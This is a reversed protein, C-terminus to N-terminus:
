RGSGCWGAHEALRAFDDAPLTILGLMIARGSDLGHFDSGGTVLLDHAHAIARYRETTPRDHDPHFVEIAQLGAGAFEPILLDLGAKGPHALSPVGGARAILAFVEAPAAGARPVFAPRGQSLYRDFADAIDSAHGADVLAAALMPRGVAWGPARGADALLSEVEVPAGLLDLLEAMEVLRRRRDDRQRALFRSLEDHSPDLFYGLVHVDRGRHVATIEIGPISAVGAAKAATGVAACAAMTDHDTVAMTSVGAAVAAQVLAQPSLRGDSATTHLHLDIM